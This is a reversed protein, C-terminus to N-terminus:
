VIGLQRDQPPFRMCGRPLRIDPQLRGNAAVEIRTIVRVEKRTTGVHTVRRHRVYKVPIQSRDVEIAVVDRHKGRDSEKPGWRWVPAIFQQKWSRAYRVPQTTPVAFFLPSIQGALKPSIRKGNVPRTESVISNRKAIQAHEDAQLCDTSATSTSEYFGTVYEISPDFILAVIRFEFKIRGEHQASPQPELKAWSCSLSSDKPVRLTGAGPAGIAGRRTRPLELTLSQPKVKNEHRARHYSITVRYKNPLILKMRLVLKESVFVM